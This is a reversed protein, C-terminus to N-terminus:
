HCAINHYYFGSSPDTMYCINGGSDTIGSTVWDFYITATSGFNNNYFSNGSYTAWSNGGGGFYSDDAMDVSNGSFSNNTFYSGGSFDGTMLFLSGKGGFLNRSVGANDNFTSNSMNCHFRGYCGVGAFGPRNFYNDHVYASDFSDSFEVSDDWFDSITNGTIIVDSCSTLHTCSMIIGDDTSGVDAHNAFTLTNAPRGSLTSYEIVIHNSDDVAILGAFGFIQADVTSGTHNGTFHNVTSYDTAAISLYATVNSGTAYMSELYSTFVKSNSVYEGTNNYVNNYGYVWGSANTGSTDINVASQSSNFICNHYYIPATNGVAKIPWNIPGGTTSISYGNCDIEVYPSSGSSTIGTIYICPNSSSSSSIANQLQYWGTSPVDYRTTCSTVSTQSFAPAAIAFLMAALLYMKHLSKM